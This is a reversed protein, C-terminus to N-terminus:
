QDSRPSTQAACRSAELLAIAETHGKERAIELATKGWKDRLTKDAGGDLLVNIISTNNLYAAKNLPTWGTRQWARWRFVFTLAHPPRPLRCARSRHISVDTADLQANSDILRKVCALHGYMTAAHLPTRKVTQLDDCPLATTVLAPSDSRRTTRAHSRGPSPAEAQSSM